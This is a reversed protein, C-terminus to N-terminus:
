SPSYRDPVRRNRKSRRLIQPSSARPAEMKPKTKKAPPITQIENKLVPNEMNKPIKLLQWNTYSQSKGKVFFMNYNVKRRIIYIEDSWLQRGADKSYRNKKPMFIRVSDGVSIDEKRAKRIIKEARKAINKYAENIANTNKPNHVNAPEDKITRHFTNNYIEVVEPLVAAWNQRRRKQLLIIGVKLTRNFREVFSNSSPTYPKAYTLIIPIQLEKEVDITMKLFEGNQFELGNDSHIRFIHGPKFTPKWRKLESLLLPKVKEVVKQSTKKTIPFAWSFKSFTDIITIVWNYKTKKFRMDILDIQWVKM